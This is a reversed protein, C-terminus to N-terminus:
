FYHSNFLEDTGLINVYKKVISRFDDPGALYMWDDIAGRFCFREVTFMRKEKDELCFRIQSSVSDGSQLKVSYLTPISNRSAIEQM